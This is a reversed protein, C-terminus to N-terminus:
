KGGVRRNSDGFQLQAVGTENWRRRKEEEEEVDGKIFISEDDKQFSVNKQFSVIL